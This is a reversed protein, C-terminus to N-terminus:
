KEEAEITKSTEILEQYRANIIPTFFKGRSLDFGLRQSEGKLLATLREATQTDTYFTLTIGM